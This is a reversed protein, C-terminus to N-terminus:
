LDTARFRWCAFAIPGVIWAVLVALAFTPEEYFAPDPSPQVLTGAQYDPLVAEFFYTYAAVPNVAAVVDVWEPTTEPFSFGHRVYLLAQPLSAWLQFFFLVFLGFAWVTARTTTRVVASVAVAIATFTVALLSLMATAAAVHGLDFQVGRLVAVPLAALVSAVVAGSIVLSRGLFTGVVVTRRSFPLGLVIKLSGNTRKEVLATAFFALALLPTVMAFLSLLQQLMEPTNESGAPHQNGASYTLLIALGVYVVALMHLQRERVTDLVDERVFLALSRGVSM